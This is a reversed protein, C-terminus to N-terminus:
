EWQAPVGWGEGREAVRLVERVPPPKERPPPSLGLHELIRRVVFSDTVYAVVTMREGCRPCLLPDVEYVKAILRAWSPSCRKEAYREGTRIPGAHGSESVATGACRSAYELPPAHATCM